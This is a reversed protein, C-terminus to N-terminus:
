TKKSFDFEAQKNEVEIKKKVTGQRASKKTEKTKMLKDTFDEPSVANFALDFIEQQDNLLNLFSEYTRNNFTLGKDTAHWQGNQLAFLRVDLYRCGKFEMLRIVIRKDRSKQVEGLKDVVLINMGKIVRIGKIKYFM